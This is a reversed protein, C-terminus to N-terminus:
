LVHGAARSRLGLGARYQSALRGVPGSARRVAAALVTWPGDVSPASALGIKSAGREAFEFFLRWTGDAAGILTAEKPNILQESYALRVGRKDLHEVDPGSALMLQGQKTTENWGTYYVYLTGDVTEATPDECGDKDYPGTGPAIVPHDGMVFNLGDESHGAYVRAIKEPAFDSHNVARVLVAFGEGDRWVFPSLRYMELLPTVCELAMPEISEVVFGNM